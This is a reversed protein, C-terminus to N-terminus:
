KMDKQEKGRLIWKFRVRDPHETRAIILVGCKMLSQCIRDFVDAKGDQFDERMYDYVAGYDKAEGHLMDERILDKVYTSFKRDKLWALLDADTVKNFTVRKVTVNEKMFQQIYKSQDFEGSKKRPM